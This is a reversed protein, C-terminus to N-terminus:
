SKIMFCFLLVNQCVAILRKRWDGTLCHYSFLWRSRISQHYHNTLFLKTFRIRIMSKMGFLAFAGQPLELSCSSKTFNSQIPVICETSWFLLVLVPRKQFGILFYKPQSTLKHNSPGKDISRRRLKLSLVWSGPFQGCVNWTELCLQFCFCQFQFFFSWFIDLWYKKLLFMYVTHSLWDAELLKM